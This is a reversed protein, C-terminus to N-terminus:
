NILDGFLFSASIGVLHVTSDLTNQEKWQIEFNVKPKGEKDKLSIPIGLKWNTKNYEGANFEIAPSFGIMNKYIFLVPEILLSSTFFQKYNTLFGNENNVVIIQNDIGSVQTQFNIISINQLIINNNNKIGAQIKLFYSHGKSHLQMFNYSISADFGWFEKDELPMSVDSTTKYTNYGLPVFVDASFWHDRVFRYLKYDNLLKIEEKALEIYLEKEKDKLAKSIYNSLNQSLGIISNKNKVDEKFSKLEKDNFTSVKNDYESYLIKQLKKVQTEKNQFDITGKGIMSFKINLGINDEQFVGDDNYLVAFDNNAKFKTAITLLYTLKSLESKRFDFNVGIAISNDDADISTFFKQLSLNNTGNFSTGVKDSFLINLMKDNFLEKEGEKNIPKDNIYKNKPSVLDQSSVDIVTFVSVICFVLFLKSNKM